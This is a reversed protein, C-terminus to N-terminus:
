YNIKKSPERNFFSASESRYVYFLTDRVTKHQLLYEKRYYFVFLTLLSTWKRPPLRYFKEKAFFVKVVKWWSSQERKKPSEKKNLTSVRMVEVGKMRGVLLTHHLPSNIVVCFILKSPNRKDTGKILWFIVNSCFSFVIGFPIKVKPM